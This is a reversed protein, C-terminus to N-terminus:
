LLALGVITRLPVRSVPQAGRLISPGTLVHISLTFVCIVIRVYM